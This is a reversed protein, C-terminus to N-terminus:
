SITARRSRRSRSMASAAHSLRGGSIPRASEKLKLGLGPREDRMSVEPKGSSLLRAADPNGQVAAVLKALESDDEATLIPKGQALAFERIAKGEKTRADVKDRFITFGNLYAAEGELIRVHAARGFALAPTDSKLEGELEKTVYLQRYLLPSREFAKLKHFSVAPDARYTAEPEAYAIAPETM